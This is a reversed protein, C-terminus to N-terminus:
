ATSAARTSPMSCGSANTCWRRRAPDLRRERDPHRGPADARDPHRDKRGADDSGDSLMTFGQALEAPNPPDHVHTLEKTITLGRRVRCAPFRRLTTPVAPGPRADFAVVSRQLQDIVSLAKVFYIFQEAGLAEQVRAVDDDGISSSQIAFLEAFGIALRERESFLPSTPYDPLAEIKQETLGAALAPAYRLSCTSARQRPDTAM